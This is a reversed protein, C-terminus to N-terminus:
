VVPPEPVVMFIMKVEIIYLEGSLTDSAHGADRAFLDVIVLSRDIYYSPPVFGVVAHILDQDTNGAPVPLLFDSSGMGASSIDDGDDAIKWDLEMYANVPSGGSNTASYKILFGLGYSTLKHLPQYHASWGEDKGEDGFVYAMISSSPIREIPPFSYSAGDRPNYVEGPIDLAPIKLQPRWEVSERGLATDFDALAEDGVMEGKIEYGTPEDGADEDTFYIRGDKAASRHVHADDRLNVYTHGDGDENLGEVDDTTLQVLSQWQAVLGAPTAVTQEQTKETEDKGRGGTTVWGGEGGLANQLFQMIRYLPLTKSVGQDREEGGPIARIRFQDGLDALKGDCRRVVRTSENAPSDLLYLDDIMIFKQNRGILLGNRTQKVTIDSQRDGKINQLRRIEDVLSNWAEATIPQGKSVYPL